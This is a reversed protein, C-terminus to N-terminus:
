KFDILEVDFILTAKAPIVPPRGNEGYALDYPIIFRYKAGKKMLAVGEDWGKIVMGNGLGFSFPQNRPVSSDFVKQDTFFGTYHVTVQQGAKPSDGAGEEVVVYQLGSPLTNVKKGDVNYFTPKYGPKIDVLEVEFILTSNAPIPGRQMSGYGLESPITLIAKEGKRLLLLGEEWGKIVMGKGLAFKIPENRDFSSDFKKGDTFTGTYHVVVTDGNEAKPADKDVKNLLKVKLGSPTTVEENMKLKTQAILLSASFMMPLLGLLIIKKMKM